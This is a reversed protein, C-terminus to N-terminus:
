NLHFNKYDIRRLCFLQEWYFKFYDKKIIEYLWRLSISLNFSFSNFFFLFSIIQLKSQLM